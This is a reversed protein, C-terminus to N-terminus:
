LLQKAKLIFRELAEGKLQQKELLALDICYQISEKQELESKQLIKSAIPNNSNIVMTQKKLGLDGFPMSQGMKAYEDMRREWESRHISIFEQQPPM